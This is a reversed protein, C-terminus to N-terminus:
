VSLSPPGRPTIARPPPRPPLPKSDACHVWGSKELPPAPLSRAEAPEGLAITKEHQFQYWNVRRASEDAESFSADKRPTPIHSHLVSFHEKALHKQAKGAHHTHAFPASISVIALLAGLCFHSAKRVTASLNADALSCDVSILPFLL